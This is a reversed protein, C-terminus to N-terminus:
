SMLMGCFAALAIIRVEAKDWRTPDQSVCVLKPDSSEMFDWELRQAHVIKNTMDRLYLPEDPQGDKFVRGFDAASQTQRLYDGLQEGEDLLRLLSALELMARVANEEPIEFVAKSLYSWEGKFKGSVLQQLPQRSFAFTMVIALNAHIIRTLPLQYQTM